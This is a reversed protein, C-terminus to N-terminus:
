PGGRDSWCSSTESYAPTRGGGEESRLECFVLRGKLEGKCEVARRPEGSCRVEDAGPVLQEVQEREAAYRDDGCAALAILVPTVRTL